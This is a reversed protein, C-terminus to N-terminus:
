LFRVGLLIQCHYLPSLFLSLFLSLFFFCTYILAGNFSPCIAIRINVHTSSHSLSLSLTLSLPDSSSYIMFYFLFIKDNSLDLVVISVGSAHLMHIPLGPWRLYTVSHFTYIIMPLYIRLKMPLNAHQFYCRSILCQFNVKKCIEGTCLEPCLKCPHLEKGEKTTRM